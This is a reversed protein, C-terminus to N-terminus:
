DNKGGIYVIGYAQKTNYNKLEDVKSIYEGISWIKHYCFISSSVQLLNPTDLYYPMENFIYKVANDIIEDTINLEGIKGKIAQYTMNRCAYFFEKNESYIKIIKNKLTIYTEDDKKDLFNFIRINKLKENEMIAENITRLHRNLEKRTKRLAKTPSYGSSSLLLSANEEDPLLIDVQSFNEIAWNLISKIYTPTFRSNFPSIGILIHEKKQILVDCNLSQGKLVFSYNCHHSNSM